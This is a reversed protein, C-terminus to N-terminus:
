VVLRKDLMCQCDGVFWIEKRSLSVAILAASLRQSPDAQVLELVDHEEYFHRIRATIADVAERATVDGPLQSLVQDILQACVQGGTKGEWRRPTKSTVGDIVAVFAPSLHIFDENDEPNGTKSVLAQEEILYQQQESSTARTDVM